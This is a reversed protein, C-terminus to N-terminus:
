LKEVKGQTFAVMSLIYVLFELLVKSVFGTPLDFEALSGYNASGQLLHFFREVLLFLMPFSETKSQTRTHRLPCRGQSNM